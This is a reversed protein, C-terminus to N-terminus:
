NTYSGRKSWSSLTIPTKNDETSLRNATVWLTMMYGPAWVAEKEGPLPPEKEARLAAKNPLYSLCM